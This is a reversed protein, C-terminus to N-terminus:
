QAELRFPEVPSPTQLSRPHIPPQATLHLAGQGWEFFDTKIRKICGLAETPAAHECGAMLESLYKGEVLALEYIALNYPSM